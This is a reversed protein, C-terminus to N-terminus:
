KPMSMRLATKSVLMWKGERKEYVSSDFTPEDFAFGSKTKGKGNTLRTVWATDGKVHILPAGLGTVKLEALAQFEGGFAQKVAEPGIAVAKSEPLILSIDADHTWLPEMQAWDLSGIAVDFSTVAAAIDAQQAVASGYAVFYTSGCILLTFLASQKPLWKAM